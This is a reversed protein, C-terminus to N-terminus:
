TEIDAAPFSMFLGILRGKLSATASRRPFELQLERKRDKSSPLSWRAPPRIALAPPEHRSGSVCQPSSMEVFIIKSPSPGSM